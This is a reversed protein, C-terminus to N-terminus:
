NRGEKRASVPRHRPAWFDKNSSRLTTPPPFAVLHGQGSNRCLSRVPRQSLQAWRNIVVPIRSSSPPLIENFDVGHAMTTLPLYPENFPKTGERTKFGHSLLVFATYNGWLLFSGLATVSGRNPDWGLAASQWCECKCAQVPCRPRLNPVVQEDLSM